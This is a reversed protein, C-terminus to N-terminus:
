MSPVFVPVTAITTLGVPTDISASQRQPHTTAAANRFRIPGERLEGTGSPSRM